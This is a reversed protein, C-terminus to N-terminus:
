IRHTIETSINTSNPSPFAFTIGSVKQVEMLGEGNFVIAGKFLSHKDVFTDGTIEDPVKFGEPCAFKKCEEAELVLIADSEAYLFSFFEVLFSSTFTLLFPLTSTTSISSITTPSM